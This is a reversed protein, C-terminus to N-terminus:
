KKTEQVILAWVKLAIILTVAIGFGLRFPNNFSLGWCALSLFLWTFSWDIVTDKIRPYAKHNLIPALRKSIKGKFLYYVKYIFSKTKGPENNGVFINTKKKM